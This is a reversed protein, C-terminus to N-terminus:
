AIISFAIEKGWLTFTNKVFARNTYHPIFNFIHKLKDNGSTKNIYTVYNIYCYKTYIRKQMKCLSDRVYYHKIDNCAEYITEYAKIYNKKTIIGDINHYIQNIKNLNPYNTHICGIMYKKIDEFRHRDVLAIYLMLKKFSKTDLHDTVIKICLTPLVLQVGKLVCNLEM